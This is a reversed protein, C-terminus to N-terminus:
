KSPAPQGAPPSGAAASSLKETLKKVDAASVSRKTTDVDVATRLGAVDKKAETLLTVREADTLWTLTLELNDGETLKVLRRPQSTTIFWTLTGDSVPVAKENNVITEPGRTLTRGVPDLTGALRAPTLTNDFDRDFFEPPVSIWRNWYTRDDSEHGYLKWFVGESKAFTRDGLDLFTATLRRVAIHGSTTGDATVRANLVIQEGDDDTYWGAYQVAPASILAGSAERLETAALSAQDPAADKTADPRTLLVAAGAGALLAVVAVGIITKSTSAGM